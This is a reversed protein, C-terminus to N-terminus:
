NLAIDWTQFSQLFGRFIDLRRASIKLGAGGLYSACTSVVGDRRETNRPLTDVGDEPHVRWLGVILM